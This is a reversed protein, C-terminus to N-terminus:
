SYYRYSNNYILVVLWLRARSPKFFFNRARALILRAMFFKPEVRELQASGRFIRAQAPKLSKGLFYFFHVSFLFALFVGGCVYGSRDNAFELTWFSSRFSSSFFFFFFLFTLLMGVIFFFCLMGRYSVM